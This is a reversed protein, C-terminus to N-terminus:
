TGPVASEPLDLFPSAPLGATQSISPHRTQLFFFIALGASVLALISASIAWVILITPKTEKQPSATPETM